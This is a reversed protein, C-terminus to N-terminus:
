DRLQYGDTQRFYGERADDPIYNEFVRLFFRANLRAVAASGVVIWLYTPLNTATRFFLILALPMVNNFLIVITCGFHKISLLVANRLHRSFTEDFFSIMPFLYSWVIVLMVAMVYVPFEGAPGFVERYKQVIRYDLAILFVFLLGLASVAIGTKFNMKFGKFFAKVVPEIMGRQRRLMIRYLAATSAGITIVPLSMLLWLLNAIVMDAFSDLLRNIKGGPRFYREM